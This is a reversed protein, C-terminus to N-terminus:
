TWSHDSFEVLHSYLFGESLGKFVGSRLPSIGAKIDVLM